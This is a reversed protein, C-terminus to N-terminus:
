DASYSVLRSTNPALKLVHNAEAVAMAASKGADLAAYVISLARAMRVGTGEKSASDGRGALDVGAADVDAGLLGVSVGEGGEGSLIQSVTTYSKEPMILAAAGGGAPSVM